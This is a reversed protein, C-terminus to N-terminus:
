NVNKLLSEKELGVIPRSKGSGNRVLPEPILTIEARGLYSGSFQM